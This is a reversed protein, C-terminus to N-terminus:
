RRRRNDLSVEPTVPRRPPQIRYDPTRNVRGEPVSSAKMRGITRPQDRIRVAVRGALAGLGGEFRNSARPM